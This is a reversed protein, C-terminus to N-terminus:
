PVGEIVQLRDIRELVALLTTRLLDVHPKGDARLYGHVNLQEEVFSLLTESLSLRQDVILDYDDSRDAYMEFADRLAGGAKFENWVSIEIQRGDVVEFLGIEPITVKVNM